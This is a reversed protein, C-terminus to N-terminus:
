AGADASVPVLVSLPSNKSTGDRRVRVRTSDTGDKRLRILDAAPIGFVSVLRVVRYVKNGGLERVKTGVKIEGM